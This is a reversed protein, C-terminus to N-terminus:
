KQLKFRLTGEFSRGPMPRQLVTQYMAGAVNAAKFSFGIENNRFVFDKGVEIDILHFRSLSQSNDTTVFVKDTYNATARFFFRRFSVHLVTSAVHQPVYILQKGNSNDNATVPTLNTAKTYSYNILAGAHWHNHQWSLQVRLEAGRSFVKKVNLPQWYVGNSLWMIWSTVHKAYGKAELSLLVKKQHVFRAGLEGDWSKEPKLNPNGGPQWYWDNLTPYRFNRAASGFFTVSNDANIPKAYILSLLPSFPSLAKDYLAQRLQLELQLESVPKYSVGALWRNVHRLKAVQYAPVIARELDYDWLLKAVINGIPRYSLRATNRFAQMTSKSRLNIEPNSYDIADHLWATSYHITVKRLVGEWGMLTRISYDNQTEKSMQKSVIPPIQRQADTLWISAYLNNNANAKLTFQQMASLTSVRAHTLHETPLGPKYSNKFPYNNRSHLYNFATVGMLKGNGYKAQMGARTTEFSGYTVSGEAVFGSDPQQYSQLQIAAGINGTAAVGSMSVSQMGNVAFLSFDVQGLSPNNLRIGNWLVDTQAASTGRYSISSLQGNGYNKFYIGSNESLLQNLSRAAYYRSGGVPSQQVIRIIRTSTKELTSLQKVVSDTHMTVSPADFVSSGAQASVALAFLVLLLTHIIKM